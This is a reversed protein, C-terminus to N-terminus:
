EAIPWWSLRHVCWQGDLRRLVMLFRDQVHRPESGDRPTIIVNTTGACYAWPRRANLETEHITVAVTSQEFLERYHERIADQGIVEDGAPPTLVAGPEYLSVIQNLDGATDAAEIKHLVQRVAATDAVRQRGTSDCSALTLCMLSAAVCAHGSWRGAM